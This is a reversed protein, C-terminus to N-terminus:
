GQFVRVRKYTQQTHTHQPLTPSHKERDLFMSYRGFRTNMTTSPNKEWQNAKNNTDETCFNFLKGGFAVGSMILLAPSFATRSICLCPLARSSFAVRLPTYNKKICMHTLTHKPMTTCTHKPYVQQIKRQSLSNAGGGVGRMISVVMVTQQLYKPNSAPKVLRTIPTFLANFGNWDCACRACSKLSAFRRALSSRM